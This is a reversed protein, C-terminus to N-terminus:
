RAVAYLMCRRSEARGTRGTWRVKVLTNVMTRLESGECKSDVKGGIDVIYANDAGGRFNVEAQSAQLKCVLDATGLGDQM